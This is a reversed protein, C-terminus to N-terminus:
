CPSLANNNFLLEFPIFSRFKNIGM